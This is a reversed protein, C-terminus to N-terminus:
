QKEGRIRYKPNARNYYKGDHFFNYTANLLTQRFPIYQGTSTHATDRQAGKPENHSQHELDRYHRNFHSIKM